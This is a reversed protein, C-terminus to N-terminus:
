PRAREDCPAMPVLVRDLYRLLNNYFIDRVLSEPHNRRLLLEYLASMDQVGSLGRPTGPIGDFDTGLCVAKEGGLALFHELHAAATYVDPDDGLFDPCLNLGAVGGAAALATFMGDTLNRPHPCLARANSHGALPPKRACELCDFFAADSCHSLDAAMGLAELARLFRRGRETLGGGAQNSGALANPYNWTLNVLRVGAAYAEPLLTEDCGLLEAGELAIFAAIRGAKAAARADGGSRCLQVLDGNEALERNLASLTERCLPILREPPCDPVDYGAALDQEPPRIFVAFIQAAPAYTGLRALDLHLANERLGQGSALAATITDCHADFYPLM